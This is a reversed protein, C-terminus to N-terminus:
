EWNSRLAVAMREVTAEEARRWAADWVDAVHPALQDRVLDAAETLDRLQLHLLEHVVSEEVYEEHTVASTQFLDREISDPLNVPDLAYVSVELTGREYFESRCMKMFVPKNATLVEEKVVVAIRWHEMNLRAQWKELLDVIGDKTMRREGM